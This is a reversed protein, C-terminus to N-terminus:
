YWEAPVDPQGPDKGTDTDSTLYWGTISSADDESIGIEVSAMNTQEPDKGLDSDSDDDSVATEESDM